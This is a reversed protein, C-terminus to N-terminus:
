TVKVEATLDQSIKIQFRLETFLWHLNKVDVESGKRLEPFKDTFKRNNIILCRGRCPATM